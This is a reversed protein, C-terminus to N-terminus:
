FSSVNKEFIFFLMRNKVRVNIKFYDNSYKEGDCFREVDFENKLWEKITVGDDLEIPIKIDERIFKTADYNYIVKWTFDNIKTVPNNEDHEDHIEGVLSEIIDELTVIGLIQSSNKNKKVLAMHVQSIQMERLVSDLSQYQSVKIIPKIINELDFKDKCKTFYKAVSKIDVFGIIKKKSTIPLRSYGSTIFLELLENKSLEESGSVVDNIKTMVSSIKTEDFKLSNSVLSAESNELVGETSIIDILTDVEQETASENRNDKIIKNLVWNIPFFITYFVYIVPAVIKLCRISNKRAFAKPLFEGFLLIFFTLIGTAMGTAISEANGVNHRILIQSFFLGALTSAAVNVLTNVILITSLTMSYNNLLKNNIRFIWNKKKKKYYTEHKFNTVSTYSTESASFFASLFILIILTIGLLIISTLEPM